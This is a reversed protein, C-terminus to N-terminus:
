AMVIAKEAFELYYAAHADRAQELEGCEVLQELAYAHILELLSLRPEDERSISFGLLSKDVLSRIGDLVSITLGRLETSLTEVAQLSCGGVFVALRRFLTQEDPTLLDDNWRLTKLMTQQRPPVDRRMGTLVELPHELRSLLTKPPMMYSQEAALEIALPVGELRSVFQLM